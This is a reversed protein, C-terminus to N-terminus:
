TGTGTRRGGWPGSGSQRAFTARFRDRLRVVAMRLAGGTTGLREATQEYTSEPAPRGLAPMLASFLEAKGSKAYAAELAELSEDLLSAALNRRWLVMPDDHMAPDSQLTAEASDADLSFPIM